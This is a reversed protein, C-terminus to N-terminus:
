ILGKRRREEKPPFYPEKELRKQVDYLTEGRAWYPYVLNPTDQMSVLDDWLDRHRHYINLLESKTANPCFWCGNRKAFTYIPSLLGRDKCIQIAEEETIGYKALLSVSGDKLRALRRPEDAAIGVYMTFPETQAKKWANIARMKCDRNIYCMGPIPFGRLKGESKGKTCVHYFTDKMTLESRIIETKIGYERELKPIAVNYIFDRHEPIEASIEPTYMVECYVAGHIPEGKEVAVICQALSDKGM